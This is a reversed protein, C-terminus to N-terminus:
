HYDKVEDFTSQPIWRYCQKFPTPDHLEIHHKVLTTFGIDDEHQPFVDRWSWLFEVVQEMQELDLTMDAMDFKSLFFDRRKLINLHLKHYMKQVTKYQCDTDKVSCIGLSWVVSQPNISLTSTSLNSVRVPIM